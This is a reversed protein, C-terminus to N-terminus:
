NLNTRNKINVMLFKFMESIKELANDSEEITERLEQKEKRLSVIEGSISKRRDGMM